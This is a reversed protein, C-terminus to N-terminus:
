RHSNPIHYTALFYSHRIFISEFFLLQTYFNTLQQMVEKGNSNRLSIYLLVMILEVDCIPYDEKYMSGQMSAYLNVRVWSDIVMM